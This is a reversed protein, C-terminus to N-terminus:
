ARQARMFVHPVSQSGEDLMFRQAIRYGAQRTSAELPALEFRHLHYRDRWDTRRSVELAYLVRLYSLLARPRWPPRRTVRELARKVNIELGPDFVSIWIALSGGPKLVRASEALASNADAIHDLSTAFLVVDFAGDRFPLSEAVGQVFDYDRRGPHFMPDVGVLRKVRSGRWEPRFYAQEAYMGCGVDLVVADRLSGSWFEGFLQAVTWVVSGRRSEPDALETEYEPVAARQKQEWERHRDFTESGSALMPVGDRM